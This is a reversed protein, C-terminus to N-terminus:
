DPEVRLNHQAEIVQMSTSRQLIETLMSAHDPALHQVVVYALGSRPLVNRFFAEYAELGGASAGIGIVPTLETEAASTQAPTILSTDPSMAPAPQKSTLPNRLRLSKALLCNPAM